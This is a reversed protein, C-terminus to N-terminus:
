SLYIGYEHSKDEKINLDCHIIINDEKLYYPQFMLLGTEANIFYKYEKINQKKHKLCKKYLDEDIHDWYKKRNEKNNEM